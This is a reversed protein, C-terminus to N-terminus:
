QAAITGRSSPLHSEVFASCSNAVAYVVVVMQLLDDTTKCGTVMAHLWEITSTWLCDNNNEKHTGYAWLEKTPQYLITSQDITRIIITFNQLCM